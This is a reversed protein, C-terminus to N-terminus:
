CLHPAPGPPSAPVLRAARALGSQLEITQQRPCVRIPKNGGAGHVSLGGDGFGELDSPESSM